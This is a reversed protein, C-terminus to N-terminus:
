ELTREFDEISKFLETFNGKGFGGCGGAQELTVYGGTGPEEAPQLCGIRQIIEIFITPRDGLPRTFIQLLVGQDDRDVLAGLREAEKYQEPTLAEGIKAPLERYYKDSPRPMFEFGVTASVNRMRSLTALMDNSRLALHQVGPGLNHDLFTQIQSKRKTGATPENFPLLIRENNSALVMSNLGSDVTGVDAATFEAFEHFGTFNAVYDITELLCPVNGVAHDLAEFGFDQRAGAQPAIPEYGPFFAPARAGPGSLFRLVVDGYLEVEAITVAEDGGGGRRCPALAPRAGHKVSACYAEATDDVELAVARVALGHRQVFRHAAAADFGPLGVGDERGGDGTAGRSGNVAELSAGTGGGGALEVASPATFVLCLDRSRLVYSSCRTDGSSLDCRAVMPM